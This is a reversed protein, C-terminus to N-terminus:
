NEGEADEAEELRRVGETEEEDEADDDDAAHRHDCQIYKEERHVRDDCDNGDSSTSEKEPAVERFHPIRSRKINRQRTMTQPVDTIFRAQNHEGLVFM